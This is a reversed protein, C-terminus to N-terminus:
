FVLQEMIQNTRLTELKTLDMWIVPRVTYMAQAMVSHCSGDSDVYVSHSELSGPSRLWWRCLGNENDVSVTQAEVGAKPICTRDQNNPFYKNVEAYSLLYVQDYTNNMWVTKYDPNGQGASNDVYTKMVTSQEDESFASM